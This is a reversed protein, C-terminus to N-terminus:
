GFFYVKINKLIVFEIGENKLVFVVFIVRSNELIMQKCIVEIEVIIGLEQMKNLGVIKVDKLLKELM